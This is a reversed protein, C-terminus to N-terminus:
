RKGVVLSSVIYSLDCHYFLPMAFRRLDVLLHPLPAHQAAEIIYQELLALHGHFSFDSSYSVRADRHSGTRSLFLRSSHASISERLAGRAGWHRMM